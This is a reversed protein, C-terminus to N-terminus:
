RSAVHDIFNGLDWLWEQQCATYSDRVPRPVVLQLSSVRMQDTQDESIGPELTFLHKRSVKAAEALVQRWREKCIERRALRM